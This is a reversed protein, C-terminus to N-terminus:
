TSPPVTQQEDQAPEGQQGPAAQLQEQVLQMLAAHDEPAFWGACSLRRRPQEVPGGRAPHPPAGTDATCVAQLPASQLRQVADPHQLASLCVWLSSHPPQELRRLCWLERAAPGQLARACGAACRLVQELEPRFDAPAKEPAKSQQRGAAPTLSSGPHVLM